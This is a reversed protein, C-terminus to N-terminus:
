DWVRELLLTEKKRTSNPDDWDFGFMNEQDYFRVVRQHKECNNFFEEILSLVERQATEDLVYFVKILLPFSIGGPQIFLAHHDIGPIATKKFPFNNLLHNELQDITAKDEYMLTQEFSKFPDPKKLKRTGIYPLAYVSSYVGKNLDLYVHECVWVAQQSGHISCNFPGM